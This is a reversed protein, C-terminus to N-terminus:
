EWAPTNNRVKKYGDGINGSQDYKNDKRTDTKYARDETDLPTPTRPKMDSFEKYPSSAQVNNNVPTSAYPNDNIDINNVVNLIADMAESQALIDTYQEKFPSNKYFLLLPGNPLASNHSYCHLITDTAMDWMHGFLAAAAMGIAAYLFTPVMVTYIPLSPEASLSTSMQFALFASFNILGMSVISTITEGTGHLEDLRVNTKSLVRRAHNCSSLFSRSRLVQEVYSHKSFFNIFNEITDVYCIM